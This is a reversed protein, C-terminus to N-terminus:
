WSGWMQALMYRVGLFGAVGVIKSTASNALFASAAAGGMAVWELPNTFDITGIIPLGTDIVPMGAIVPLGAPVSGLASTSSADPASGMFAPGPEDSIVQAGSDWVTKRQVDHAPVEWGPYKGHSCDLPCMVGDPLWACGYVHSYDGPRKRDCALTVIGWQYGMACALACALMTFDDCDGSPAKMRLMVPPSILLEFHDNENFLVRTLVDDHLFKIHNKVWLWIASLGEAAGRRRGAGSRVNEAPTHTSLWIKQAIAQLMPDAQANRVHECMKEVTQKTVVSTPTRLGQPTRDRKLVIPQAAV